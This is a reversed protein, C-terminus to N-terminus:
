LLKRFIISTFEFAGNHDSTSVARLAGLNGSASFSFSESKTCFRALCIQTWIKDETHLLHRLSTEKFLKM